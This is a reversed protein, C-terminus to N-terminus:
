GDNRGGALIEACDLGIQALQVTRAPKAMLDVLGVRIQGISENAPQETEGFLSIEGVSSLIGGDHGHKSDTPIRSAFQANVGIDIQEKEVLRRERLM